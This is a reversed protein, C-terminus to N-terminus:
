SDMRNPGAQSIRVGDILVNVRDGFLGRYQAISTLPGNSNINAGPLRKIMDGTDPTAISLPPIAYPTSEGSVGEVALTPLSIHEAHVPANLGMMLLPLPLLKFYQM